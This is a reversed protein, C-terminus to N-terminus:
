PGTWTDSLINAAANFGGFLVVDGTVQDYAMSSEWLGVAGGPCSTTCGPQQLDDIQTWSGNWEWTDSVINLNYDIGGFLVVADTTADYSSSAGFRSPPSGVCSTCGVQGADDVQTWVGNWEWTDSLSSLGDATGGFLVVVGLASDYAMSAGYRPPPSGSCTTCGVQGSDDVQTWTAGDWTWTDSLASDSSSFGGFLVVDGTAADYVMSASTRRGPGGSCTTCGPDGSDDVQSWTTGDWTWTDSLFSNDSKRIGGFLVVDGSGADYAMSAGWRASPGTSASKAWTTGNWTWTDSLYGSGNKSAGGFLVVGGTGADYTM